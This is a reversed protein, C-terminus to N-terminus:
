KSVAAAALWVILLPTICESGICTTSSSLLGQKTHMSLCFAYVTCAPRASALWTVFGQLSALQLGMSRAIALGHMM